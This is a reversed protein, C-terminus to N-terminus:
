FTLRLGLQIQRQAVITSSIVGALSNGITSNPNSFQPHNFANFAELRFTLRFRERLAFQRHVSLDSNVRGPGHLANRPTNGFTYATPATFAATDFWHNIARQSQPLYGSATRNPRETTGTNSADTSMVVNFPRGTETEILGEVSWGGLLLAPIGHSVWPKGAGLPLDWIGSIALRRRIDFAADARELKLNYSNQPLVSYDDEGNISSAVDIAHGWTYAAITTFGRSYRHEARLNLGEYTSRNYPEIARISGYLPFPRRPNITGPGPLPQNLDRAGVLKLGLNGVYAAEVVWGGFLERQVTLGWQQVYPLPFNVPYGVASPNKANRPDVANAPFGGSLTLLPSLQDSPFAVSVFFPANGLMRAVVGYGEDQGYFLGYGGRVVTKPQIQRAFGFRPAFNNADTNILQRSNGNQGALALTGYLPSNPAYVFNAQHNQSETFPLAVEYRIGLNLTLTPTIKWDDQFYGAWVKSQEESVIRSGVTGTQALGLLFDAFPAGTNGRSAPSQTYAGNFNFSGKGNLTANTFPSILRFDFGAKLTHRGRIMTISDTVEHTESLKAIPVNGQSGLSTFGTVSVVPPGQVGTALANPIGFDNVQTGTNQLIQVRNFGYKLENITSANLNHIWSGALGHTKDSKTVALNAPAPLGPPSLSPADLQSYRGFFQDKDGPRYDIRTNIQDSTTTSTPNWVYNRPGPQNPLPFLARLKQAVPDWRNMPIQNGPFPDRVAAGNVTRLTAPDFITPLGSFDGARIAASPVTSTQPSPNSERQGEYNFFFFLKDRLIPGGITGGFQHQNFRPKSTNAPQFYPTADFAANRGFEFLSGHFRNTGSKMTANVVAGASQGYEASFLSTEVKFEELADPSPRIVDRRGDDLGRMYSVNAVGDILYSNEISRMGNATFSHDRGYYTSVTGPALRGLRLWDRGNLPLETIKQTDLVQGTSASESQLLPAAATVQVSDSLQGLQLQFNIRLKDQVQLTIGGRIERRFGPAEVTIEYRSPRLLPASYIGRDNSTLAQVANRDEDKIQVRAGTIVAGGGDTITGDISGLEVQAYCNLSYLFLCATATKM